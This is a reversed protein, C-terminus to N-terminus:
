ERGEVDAETIVHERVNVVSYFTPKAHKEIWCSLLTELEAKAEPAIDPYGDAAEGVEDYAREGIMDIVDDADCLRETPIPAVDGYFVVDGVALEDHMDLLEDLADCSFFENNKSWVTRRVDTTASSGTENTM